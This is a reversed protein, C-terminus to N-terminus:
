GTTPIAVWNATYTAALTRAYRVSFGTASESFVRGKELNPHSPTAVVSPITGVPFPVAFTVVVTVDTTGSPIAVQGAKPLKLPDPNVLHTNVDAATLIENDVFTKPM